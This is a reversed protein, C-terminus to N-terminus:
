ERARRPRGRVEGAAAEELIWQLSRDGRRWFDAAIGTWYIHMNIGLATAPAFYGLRRQQRCVEALNMGSGGFEKPVAITL